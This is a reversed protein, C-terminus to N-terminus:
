LIVLGPPLKQSNRQTFVAADCPATIPSLAISRVVRRTMEWFVM